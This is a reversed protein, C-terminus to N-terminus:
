DCQEFALNIIWPAPPNGQPSTYATATAVNSTNSTSVIYTGTSGSGSGFATVTYTFAGMTIVTGVIITGATQTAITLTNSSAVFTATGAGAVANDRFELGFNDMIQINVNNSLPRDELFLPANTNDEAQLYATNTTGGVLIIPKLMGLYQSTPAGNGSTHVRTNLGSIQVYANRTGTYINASGMYNLHLYYQGNPLVASWDINFNANSNTGTIKNNSNLIVNYIKKLSKTPM